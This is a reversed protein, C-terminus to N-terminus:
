LTCHFIHKACHASYMHSAYIIIRFVGNIARSNVQFTAADTLWDSSKNQQVLNCIIM